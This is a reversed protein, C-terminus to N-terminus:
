CSNISKRASALPLAIRVDMRRRLGNEFSVFDEFCKEEVKCLDIVHEKLPNRGRRCFVSMDGKDRREIVREGTAM